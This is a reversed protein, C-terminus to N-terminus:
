AYLAKTLMYASVDPQRVPMNVTTNQNQRTFVSVIHSYKNFKPSFQINHPQKTLTNLGPM